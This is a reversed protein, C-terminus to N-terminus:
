QQSKFENYVEIYKKAVLTESFNLVAESSIKKQDFNSLNILCKELANKLDKSNINDVIIGNSSNLQECVGGVNFAVVPTGCFLSECITNPFNEALSPLVFIDAASYLKSMHEDSKIYGLQVLNNVSSLDKSISGVSCLLVDPYSPLLQKFAEILINIGKRPNNINHSVFLIIKKDSPLSFQKRSEIKNHPFFIAPDIGNPIITHNFRNFLKSSKSKASLWASPTVIKLQNNRIGIFSTSKIELIRNAINDDMTNKLQPCNACDATFKDCDDSHHCGGTFANMDHLTWVIKKDSATFFSKFDLFGDSVWHLNIIDSSLVLPHNELRNSSNTFSFKEFGPAQNQLYKKELKQHIPNYFNFRKLINRFFYICRYLSKFEKCDEPSFVYHGEISGGLKYMTLLRSDIGSKLLALHLRVAAIGAGGRDSTSIQLVKM